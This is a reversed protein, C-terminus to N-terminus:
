IEYYSEDMIEAYQNNSALTVGLINDYHNPMDPIFRGWKIIIQGAAAMYLETLQEIPIENKNYGTYIVIDDNCNVVKLEHIISLMDDFSDFPELGQFCIAETIPNNIYLDIISKIAVPINESQALASNHCVAKGCETDCKFDCVPMEIVMCPKKYNVFDEAIIGKIYIVDDLM